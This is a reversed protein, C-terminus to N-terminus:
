YDHGSRPPRNARWYIWVTLVITAAVLFFPIGTVIIDQITTGDGIYNATVSFDEIRDSAQAPVNCTIESM